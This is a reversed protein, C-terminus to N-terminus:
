ECLGYASSCAHVDDLDDLLSYQRGGHSTKAWLIMQGIHGKAFIQRDTEGQCHEGPGKHLFTSYGRKSARSVLAEWAAIRAIHEPFRRAIEKLEDKKLNVCPMCGVRAMGQTYLPNPAIGQQQCYAFVEQASWDILPRYIHLGAGAYEYQKAMRRRRSEDRRIGQWSVVTYGQEILELQYAVALNRKLHETCFQAAHSPFRGKWLCLDLYPNGTPQLIDLARRKAANSWRLKKGNAKRTKPIGILDPQGDKWVMQLQPKGHNDMRYVINGLRDRQVVTDYVRKHRRDRAIFLRKAAIEAPFDAKLRVITIGTQQELYDLYDYVALHENGTDCFIARVRHKGFRAIALLLTAASDKGGSVSVVHIIPM